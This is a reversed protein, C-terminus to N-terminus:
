WQGPATSGWVGSGGLGWCSGSGKANDGCVPFLYLLGPSGTVAQFFCGTAPILGSIFGGSPHSWAAVQM